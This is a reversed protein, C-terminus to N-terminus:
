CEVRPKAPQGDQGQGANGGGQAPAGNQQGAGGNQQGAVGDQGAKAEPKPAQTDEPTLKYKPNRSKIFAILGNVEKDGLLGKYTPMTPPFGARVKAQPNLISERIYNEDGQVNSGDSFEHPQGYTQAFGPGVRRSEDLAHCQSCGRENYLLEGLQIPPMNLIREREDALWQEFCGEKHIVAKALMESHNTGCYEACQVAYEGPKTANFWLYNFRGPVVDQKVRFAAVFFSHIVDDSSMVLRVPRNVPAHLDKSVVGNPYVFSWNWKKGIVSIDYSGDPPTRLDLFGLFGKVFMVVILLSPIISWSLELPYNHHATRQETWGARRRYMVMFAVQVVVIIVFFVVSIWYVLWWASDIEPAVTSAQEPLWLSGGSEAPISLLRLPTM